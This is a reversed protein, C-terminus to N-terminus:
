KGIRLANVHFINNSGATGTAEIVIIIEGSGNATIGTYIDTTGHEYANIEAEANGQITFFGLRNNSAGQGTRCNCMFELSIGSQSASFGSITITETGDAKNVEMHSWITNGTFTLGSLASDGLDDFGSNDTMSIDIATANGDIDTLNTLSTDDNLDWLNIATENTDGQPNAWSMQLSIDIYTLEAEVAFRYPNIISM